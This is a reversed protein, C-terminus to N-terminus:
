STAAPREALQRRLEANEHRLLEVRESLASLGRELGANRARERELQVTLHVLEARLGPGSNSADPELDLATV